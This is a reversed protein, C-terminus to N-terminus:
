RIVGVGVGFSFHPHGQDMEQPTWLHLDGSRVSVVPYTYTARDVMGPRTGTVQGLVTVPAGDPYNMPEVFGPLEAIFRGQADSRLRPRQSSDLPYALIEIDTRDSLNKVGIIKGGWIVQAQPYANPAAAVQAPTITAASADAKYIPPPACAALAGPVAVLLVRSLVILAKHM